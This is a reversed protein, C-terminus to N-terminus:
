LWSVQDCFTKVVGVPSGGAFRMVFPLLSEIDTEDIDHLNWGLGKVLSIELEIMWDDNGTEAQGDAAPAAPGSSFEQVRGMVANLVAILEGPQTDKLDNVGFRGGFIQAVVGALNYFDDQTLVSSNTGALRTIAKFTRWPVSVAVYVDGHLAFKIPEM